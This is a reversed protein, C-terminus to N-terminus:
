DKLPLPNISAHLTAPAITRLIRRVHRDLMHVSIRLKRTVQKGTLGSAILSFVERERKTLKVEGFAAGHASQASVRVANESGPPPVKGQVGAAVSRITALLDLPSSGKLIFGSVGAFRADPKRVRTVCGKSRERPLQDEM